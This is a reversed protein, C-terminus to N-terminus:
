DDERIVDHFRKAVSQSRLGVLTAAMEWIRRSKSSPADKYAPLAVQIHNGQETHEIQLEDAFQRLVLNSPADLPDADSLDIAPGQDWLDLVANGNRWNVEIAVAGSRRYWEAALIEGTLLEVMFDDSHGHSEERVHLAVARRTQAISAADTSDLIWRM